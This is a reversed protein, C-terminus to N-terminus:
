STISIERRDPALFAIDVHLSAAAKLAPVREAWEILTLRGDNDELLGIEEIEQPSKLRYLDAHSVPITTEPPAYEHILGYSPSTVDGMFGFGRLIGKCLVTKGAGLQGNIVVMDGAKLKGALERGLALMAAEDDVIM